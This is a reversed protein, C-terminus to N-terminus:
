SAVAWQGHYMPHKLFDPTRGSVLLSEYVIMLMIHCPAPHVIAILGPRAPPSMQDELDDLMLTGQATAHAVSGLASTDLASTPLLLTPKRLYGAMARGIKGGAKPDHMSPVGDWVEAADHTRKPNVRYGDMGADNIQYRIPDGYTGTPEMVVDVQKAPLEKLVKVM